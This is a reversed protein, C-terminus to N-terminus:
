STTLVGFLRACARSVSKLYGFSIGWRNGIEGNPSFRLSGQVHAQACALPATWKNM